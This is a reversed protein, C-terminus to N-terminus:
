SSLPFNKGVGTLASKLSAFYGGGSPNFLSSSHVIFGDLSTHELSSELGLDESRARGSILLTEVAKLQTAVSALRATECLLPCTTGRILKVPM